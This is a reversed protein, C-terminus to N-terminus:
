FNPTVISCVLNCFFYSSKSQNILKELFLNRLLYAIQEFIELFHTQIYKRTFQFYLDNIVERKISIDITLQSM